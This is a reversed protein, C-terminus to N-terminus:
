ESKIINKRMEKKKKKKYILNIYFQKIIYFKQLNNNNNFKIINETYEDSRIKVREINVM